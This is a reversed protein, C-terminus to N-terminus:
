KKFIKEASEKIEEFVEKAAGAAKEAFGSAKGKLEANKEKREEPTMDAYTKVQGTVKGTGEAVAGAATKLVEGAKDAAAKIREDLSVKGDQNLDRPDFENQESM